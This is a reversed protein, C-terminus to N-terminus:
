MSDKDGNTTKQTAHLQYTGQKNLAHQMSIYQEVM